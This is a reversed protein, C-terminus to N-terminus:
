QSVINVEVVNFDHVQSKSSGTALEGRVSVTMHDKLSNAYPEIGRLTVEGGKDDTSLGLHRLRWVNNKPNFQLTGVLTRVGRPVDSGSAADDNKSDDSIKPTVVTTALPQPAVPTIPNTGPQHVIIPTRGCSGCYKPKDMPIDCPPAPQAPM